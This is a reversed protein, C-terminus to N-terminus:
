VSPRNWDEPLSRRGLPHILVTDCRVEGAIEFVKKGKFAAFRCHVPNRSLDSPAIQKNNQAIDLLKRIAEEFYRFISPILTLLYSIKCGFIYLFLFNKCYFFTSQHAGM